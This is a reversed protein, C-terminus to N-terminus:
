QQLRLSLSNTFQQMMKLTLLSSYPSTHASSSPFCPALPLFPSPLISLSALRASSNLSCAMRSLIFSLLPHLSAFHRSTHAFHPHRATTCHTNVILVFSGCVRQIISHIFSHAFSTWAGSSCPIRYLPKPSVLPQIAPVNFFHVNELLFSFRSEQRARTRVRRNIREGVKVEVSVKFEM